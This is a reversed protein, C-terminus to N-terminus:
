ESLLGEKLSRFYFFLFVHMMTEMFFISCCSLMKYNRFWSTISFVPTIVVVPIFLTIIFYLIIKNLITM